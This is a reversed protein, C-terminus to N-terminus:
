CRELKDSVVRPNQKELLAQGEKKFDHPCDHLEPLRHGDCYRVRCKSCAIHSLMLKKKCSGCRNKNPASEEEKIEKLMGQITFGDNM